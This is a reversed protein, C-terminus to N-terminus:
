DIKGENEKEKAIEIPQGCIYVTRTKKDEQDLEEWEANFEAETEKAVANHLRLEEIDEPRFEYAVIYNTATDLLMDFGCPCQILQFHKKLDKPHYRGCEPCPVCLM